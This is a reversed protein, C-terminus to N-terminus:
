CEVPHAWCETKTVGNWKSAVDTLSCGALEPGKVKLRIAKRKPGVFLTKLRINRM